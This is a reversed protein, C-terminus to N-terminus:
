NLTSSDEIHYFIEGEKIMNLQRRAREELARTGEKLDEVEFIMRGNRLRLLQNQQQQNGIGHKLNWVESLGGEGNWLRVQLLVLVPMLAWFVLRPLISKKSALNEMM